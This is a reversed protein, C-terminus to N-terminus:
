VNQPTCCKSWPGACSLLYLSQAVPQVTQADFVPPLLMKWV